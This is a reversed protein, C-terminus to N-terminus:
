CSTIGEFYSIFVGEEKEEWALLDCIYRSWRPLESDCEWLEMHAPIDERLIENYSECKWIAHLTKM